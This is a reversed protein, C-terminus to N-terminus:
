GQGYDKNAEMLITHFCGSLATRALWIESFSALWPGKFSRLRYWRSLYYLVTVLSFVSLLMGCRAANASINIFMRDAYPM